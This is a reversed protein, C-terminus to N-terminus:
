VCMPVGYLLPSQLHTSIYLNKCPSTIHNVIHDHYFFWSGSTDKLALIKNQRRRITTSIHFFNTNSDGEIWQIGSIQKWLTEELKLLNSYEMQWNKEM